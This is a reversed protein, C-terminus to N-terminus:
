WYIVSPNVIFPDCGNDYKFEIKLKEKQQFGMNYFPIEFVDAAVGEVKKGNVMVEKIGYSGGSRPNMVTLNDAVYTGEVILTSIGSPDSGKIAGPNMIIPMGPSGCSDAYWINIKVSDGIKLKHLSLDIQFMNANIEDTTINNNVKVQHVCFGIGNKGFLNTVFLNKGNYVGKLDLKNNAKSHIQQAHIPVGDIIVTEAKDEKQGCSYFLIFVASLLNLKIITKM